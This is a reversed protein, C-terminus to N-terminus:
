ERGQLRKELEIVERMLFLHPEEHADELFVFVGNVDVVSAVSAKYDGIDLEVNGFRRDRLNSKSWTQSVFLLLLTLLGNDLFQQFTASILRGDFARFNRNSVLRRADSWRLDSLEM